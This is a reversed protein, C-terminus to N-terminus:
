NVRGHGFAFLLFYLAGFLLAGVVALVTPVLAILLPFMALNPHDEARLWLSGGVVAAALFLIGAWPIMNDSSVYGQVLGKLFVNLVIAAPLANAGWFWWFRAAVWVNWFKM